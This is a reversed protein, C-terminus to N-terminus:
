CECFLFNLLSSPLNLERMPKLTKQKHVICCRIVFRCLQKLSPVSEELNKGDIIKHLSILQLFLDFNKVFSELDFELEWPNVVCCRRVAQPPERHCRHIRTSQSRAAGNRRRERKFVYIWQNKLFRKVSATSGHKGFALELAGWKLLIKLFDASSKHEQKDLYWCRNLLTDELLKKESFPLSQETDICYGNELLLELPVSLHGLVAAVVPSTLQLDNLKQQDVVAILYKLIDVKNGKVAWFIASPKYLCRNKGQHDDKVTRLGRNRFPGYLHLFSNEEFAYIDCGKNVLFETIKANSILCSLRLIRYGFVSLNKDAKVQSKISIVELLIQLLTTDNRDYAIKLCDYRIVNLRPLILDKREVDDLGLSYRLLIVIVQLVNQNLATLLVESYSDTEPRLINVSISYYHPLGQLLVRLIEPTKFSLVLAEYIARNRKTPDCILKLRDDCHTNYFSCVYQIMEVQEREVAIVLFSAQPKRGDLDEPHSKSICGHLYRRYFTMTQDWENFAEFKYKTAFKVILKAIDVYGLEIAEHLPYWGDKHCNLIDFSKRKKLLKKLSRCDRNYIHSMLLDYNSNSNCRSIIKSHNNTSSVSM